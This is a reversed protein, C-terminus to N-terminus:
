EVATDAALKDAFASSLGFRAQQLNMHYASNPPNPVHSHPDYNASYM